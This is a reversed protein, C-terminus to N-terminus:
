KKKKAKVEHAQLDLKTPWRDPNLLLKLKRPGPAMTYRPTKAVVAGKRRAFLQVHAKARLVFTLELTHGVLKQKLKTVLAPKRKPLPEAIIEAQEKKTEENAGSNDEPLFVPPTTPLSNDAPRFAIVGTHLTPDAVAAPPGLHFLWGTNTAMWCQEAAPCAIPGAPGRPGGGEGELPLPSVAEVKGDAGILAVHARVNASVESGQRVSAWAANRGPDAALGRLRTGARLFGSPDSLSLQHLGTGDLRLATLEAASGEAGAVAWLGEGADSLRFGELEEATAGAQGYTIPAATALPRFAATTGPIVEHILFPEGAPENAAQDDAKVKVGEFLKGEHYALGTVNRGPDALEPELKSLSPVSTLTLGNWYLHFAGVNGTGPLREGAFWCESPGNCAAASMKLYSSGVGIPEGYSAVVAGNVFHCLSLAFGKSEAGPDISGQGSQQDSITWFDTPGAWAIRGGHGGCVKSYLFWERGDYAYIGAPMGGNGQTILLCRNAQWCSIDGVEGLPTPGNPGAPQESRWGLIFTASVQKAAAMTVLCENAVTVADCGSWHVTETGAGLTATLTVATGNAFAATCEGSTGGCSIGAPASAVSGTGSGEVRVELTQDALAVSPLVALCALVLAALLLARRM